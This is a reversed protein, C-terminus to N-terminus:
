RGKPFYKTARKQGKTAVSKAAILKKVPLALDKTAVGLAKGIQEIREGPHKVIYSRLESVQYALDAATRKEGKARSPQPRPKTGNVVPPLKSPAGLSGELAAMMEAQLDARILAILQDLVNTYSYQLQM